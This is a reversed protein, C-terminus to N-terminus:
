IVTRSALPHRDDYDTKRTYRCTSGCSLVQPLNPILLIGGGEFGAEPLMRQLPSSETSPFHYQLQVAGRDGIRATPAGVTLFHRPDIILRRWASITMLCSRGCSISNVKNHFDPTMNNDAVSSSPLLHMCGIAEEM